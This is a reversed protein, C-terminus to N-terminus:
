NFVWSPLTVMYSSPVGGDNFNSAFMIRSGDRSVTAQPEGFYGGDNAATRTHTVSYQRGNPRLEVLM